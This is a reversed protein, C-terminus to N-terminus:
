LCIWSVIQHHSLCAERSAQCEAQRETENSYCGGLQPPLDHVHTHFDSQTGRYTARGEMGNFWACIGPFRSADRVTFGKYYFLSASMRELFPAFLCDVVSFSELFFPGPSSQLVGDVM